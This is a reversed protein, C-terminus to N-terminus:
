AAPKTPRPDPKPIGAAGKPKAAPKATSAPAPARAKLWAARANDLMKLSYPTPEPLEGDEDPEVDVLKHRQGATAHAVFPDAIDIVSGPKLWLRDTGGVFEPLILTFGPAVRKLSSTTTETM